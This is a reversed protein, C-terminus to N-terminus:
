SVLSHSSYRHSHGDDAPLELPAGVGPLRAEVLSKRIGLQSQARLAQFFFFFSLVLVTLINQSHAPLVLPQVPFTSKPIQPSAIYIQSPLCRNFHGPSLIQKHTSTYPDNVASDNLHSPILTSNISTHYPYSFFWLMVM